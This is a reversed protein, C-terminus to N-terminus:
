AAKKEQHCEVLAEVFKIDETPTWKRKSPDQCDLAISEMNFLFYYYYYYFLVLLAVFISVSL